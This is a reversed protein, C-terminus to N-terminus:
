GPPLHRTLFATTEAAIYPLFVFSARHGLPLLRLEPEGLAHYLNWGCCIPVSTDLKALFLLVHERPVGPALAIPDTRLAARLRERIQEKSWGTAAQVKAAYRRFRDEVTDVMVDAMPGGGFVWAHAKLRPDVAATMASVMSGASVGFSALRGADVNPRTVLWDLAQRQRLVLLRLEAEAQEIAATPDLEVDKREVMAAIFGAGTFASAFEPTLLNSSGLVPSMLVLPRPPPFDPLPQFLTIEIPDEARAVHRLDPPLRVPLRVHRIEVKATRRELTDSIPEPVPGPADYYGPPIALRGAPRPARSAPRSQCAAGLLVGTWALIRIPFPM